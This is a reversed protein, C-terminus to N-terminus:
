EINLTRSLKELNFGIIVEKGIVVTPTSYAGYTKTLEQRAKEDTSINKEQFDVNHENLFMKVIKCPPCDNQTYIILESM